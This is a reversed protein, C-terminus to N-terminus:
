LFGELEQARNPQRLKRIAKAEIGRIRERTVKFIHGIEEPTYSVGDVLGYHLKIIERERYSLTKLVKAIRGRLLAQEDPIRQLPEECPM